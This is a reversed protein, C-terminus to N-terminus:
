ASSNRGCEEGTGVWIISPDAQFIAVDGISAAGYDEFIPDWTTGGNTSKWVGGSATGVVVHTWDDALADITSIRGRQNANGVNRWTLHQILTQELEQALAPPQVAFALVSIIAFTTLTTRPSPRMM